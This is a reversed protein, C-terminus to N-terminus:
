QKRIPWFLCLATVRFSFCVPIFVICYSGVSIDWFFCVSCPLCVSETPKSCVSEGVCQFQLCLCSQVIHFLSVTPFCVVNSGCLHSNIYHSQSTNIDRVLSFNSWSYMLIESSYNVMGWQKEDNNDKKVESGLRVGYDQLLPSGQLVRGGMCVCRTLRRTM